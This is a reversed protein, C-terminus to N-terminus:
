TLCRQFSARPVQNGSQCGTGYNECCFSFFEEPWQSPDEASIIKHGRMDEIFVFLALCVLSWGWQGRFYRPWWRFCECPLVLIIILRPSGSDPLALKAILVFGGFIKGQFLCPGLRVVKLGLLFCRLAWIEPWGATQSHGLGLWLQSHSVSGKSFVGHNQSKFANSLGCYSAKAWFEIM